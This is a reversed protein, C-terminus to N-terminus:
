GIGLAQISSDKASLQLNNINKNSKDESYRLIQTDIIYVSYEIEDM